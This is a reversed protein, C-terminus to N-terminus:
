LPIAARAGPGRGALAAVSARWADAALEQRGTSHAWACLSILDSLEVIAAVDGARAVRELGLAYLADGALLQLSDPSIAVSDVGYSYGEFREIDKGTKTDLLM